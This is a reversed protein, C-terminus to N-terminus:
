PNVEKAFRGFAGSAEFSRIVEKEVPTRAFVEHTEWFEPDYESANILAFDTQGSRQTARLTDSADYDYVFFTSTTQVARRDKKRTHDYDVTIQLQDLVTISPDELSRFRAVFRTKHNETKWGRHTAVVTKVRPDQIYGEYARVANTEADLHITGTYAPRRYGEIPRFAIEVLAHEGSVHRVIEFDFYKAAKPRLPHLVGAKRARRLRPIKFAQTLVSFDEIIIYNKEAQTVVAYRGQEVNWGQLGFPSTLVNYFTEVYETYVTDSKTKQRYFAHAPRTHKERRKSLDRLHEVAEEVLRSASRGDVILEDMIVTSPTLRFVVKENERSIEVQNKEYGIYSSVVMVPLSDILLSFMGEGNAATGRGTNLIAVNAFPLAEGSEANIVKGTVYIQATASPSSIAFIALTILLSFIKYM